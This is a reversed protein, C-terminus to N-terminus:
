ENQNTNDHSSCFYFLGKEKQILSETPQLSIFHVDSAPLHQFGGELGRIVSGVNYPSGLINHQTWLKDNNKTKLAPSSSFCSWSRVLDEIFYVSHCLYDWQNQNQLM